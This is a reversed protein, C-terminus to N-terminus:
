GRGNLVHIILSVYIVSVCIRYQRTLCVNLRGRSKNSASGGAVGVRRHVNVDVRAAQRCVGVGATVTTGAYTKMVAM